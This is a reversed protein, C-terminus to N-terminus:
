LLLRDQWREQGRLFDPVTTAREYIDVGDRGLILDRLRRVDDPYRIWKELFGDVDALIRAVGEPNLFPPGALTDHPIGTLRSLAQLKPGPPYFESPWREAKSGNCDACLLTPGTSLPWLYRVPLTHDLHAEGPAL